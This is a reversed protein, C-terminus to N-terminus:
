SPLKSKQAKANKKKVRGLISTKREPDSRILFKAGRTMSDLLWGIVFRNGLVPRVYFPIDHAKLETQVQAIAIKRLQTNTDGVKAGVWTDQIVALILAGYREWFGTGALSALGATAIATIAATIAAGVAKLLDPNESFFEIGSLYGMVAASIGAALALVIPGLQKM